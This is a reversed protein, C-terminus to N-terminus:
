PERIMATAVCGEVLGSDPETRLVIKAAVSGPEAPAVYTVPILHIRKVEDTTEFSFGTTESEIRLVKFPEKGRVVLQKRVTEGPNLVGLALSSPSVAIGPMVRGTVNLPIQVMRRDNTKLLLPETLFGPPADATLEIHMEYNVQGGGRHTEVLNVQYYDGPTEVGVIQWANRGAYRVNITRRASSGHDVQGFDVRGPQFVVDSRIYGTVTLQVEAPFPRDIVVTVTASKKETFSRTNFKARIAGKEWTKLTQKTITPTTCGCSSRVSAIHTDEVYINELVFDFNAEAGRAVVGFDHVRTEFMSNAWEVAGAPAALLLALLPAFYFSHIPLRYV